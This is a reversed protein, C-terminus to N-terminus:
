LGALARPLDYDAAITMRFCGSIRSGPNFCFWMGIKTPKTKNQKLSVWIRVRDLPLYIMLRPQLALSQKLLYISSLYM